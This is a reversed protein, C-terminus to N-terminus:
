PPAAPVPATAVGVLLLPPPQESYSRRPLPPMDAVLVLPPPPLSGGRREKVEKLDPWFPPPCWHRRRHHLCCCCFVTVVVRRRRKKVVTFDPRLPSPCRHRRLHGEGGGGESRAPSSPLPPPPPTSSVPWQRRWGRREGGGGCVWPSTSLPLFALDPPLTREAVTVVVVVCLQFSTFKSISATYKSVQSHKININHIQFIHSYNRKFRGKGVLPAETRRCLARKAM